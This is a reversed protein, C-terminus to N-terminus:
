RAILLQNMSKYGTNEHTFEIFYSGVGLFSIDLDAKTSLDVEWQYIQGGCLNYIRLLFIGPVSSAVKIRENAPNPFFNIFNSKDFAIVSM